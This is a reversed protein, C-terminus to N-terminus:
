LCLLRCFLNAEFKISDFDWTHEPIYYTRGVSPKPHHPTVPFHNEAEDEDDEDGHRDGLDHAHSHYETHFTEDPLKSNQKLKM